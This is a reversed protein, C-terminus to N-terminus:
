SKVRNITVTQRTFTLFVESPRFDKLAHELELPCGIREILPLLGPPAVDTHCSEYLALIATFKEPVKAGHMSQYFDSLYLFQKGVKFYIRLDEAKAIERLQAGTLGKIHPSEAEDDPIPIFM